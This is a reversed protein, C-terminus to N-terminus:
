KTKEFLSQFPRKPDPPLSSSSRAMSLKAGPLRPPQNTTTTTLSVPSLPEVAEEEEETVEITPLALEEIARQLPWMLNGADINTLGLAAATEASLGLMTSWEDYTIGGKTTMAYFHEKKFPSGGTLLVENNLNFQLTALEAANFFRYLEPKLLIDYHAFLWTGKINLNWDLLFLTRAQMVTFQHPFRFHIDLYYGLDILKQSPGKDSQEIAFLIMVDSINLPKSTASSPIISFLDYLTRGSEIMKRLTIDEPQLFLRVGMWEKLKSKVASDLQGVLLSKRENPTMMKTSAMIPKTSSSSTSATTNQVALPYILRIVSCSSTTSPSVIMDEVPDAMISTPDHVLWSQPVAAWKRSHTTATLSSNNTATATTDDFSISAEQASRPLQSIVIGGTSSSLNNDDDNLLPGKEKKDRHNRGEKSQNNDGGNDLTDVPKMKIAYSYWSEQQRLMM